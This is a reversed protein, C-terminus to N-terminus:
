KRFKRTHEKKGKPFWIVIDGMSFTKIKHNQQVWLMTNWERKCTWDIAEEHTEDLHKLEVM